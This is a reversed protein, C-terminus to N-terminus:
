RDFYQGSTETLIYPQELILTGGKVVKSKKNKFIGKVKSGDIYYYHIDEKDESPFIIGKDMLLDLEKKSICSYEFTEIDEIKNLIKDNLGCCKIVWKYESDEQEIMEAYRKSGLYKFDIFSAEHKWCSYNKDHITVGKVEELSGYLHLSDTDCYLFRQRNNNIARVLYAKAYSTIFSAM